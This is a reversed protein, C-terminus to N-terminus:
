GPNHHPAITDDRRSQPSMGLIALNPEGGLPPLLDVVADRHVQNLLSDGFSNRPISSM